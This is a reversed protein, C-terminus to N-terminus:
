DSPADANRRAWSHWSRGTVLSFRPLHHQRLTDIARAVTIEPAIAEIQPALDPWSTTCFAHLADDGEPPTSPDPDLLKEFLAEADDPCGYLLALLVLIAEHDIGGHGHGVADWTKILRFVNAIRKAVRPTPVLPHLTKFVTREADSISLPRRMADEPVLLEEARPPAPQSGTSREPEGEPESGAEPTSQPKAEPATGGAKRGEITGLLDDSYREFGDQEMARVAFPIQFIKELYNQPSSLRYEDQSKRDHDHDHLLREYHVQLSRLLWRSDVAAVVVFLDMALLLHTAELMQVVQKPTCRDLDDIYLIIRDIPTVNKPPTKTQERWDKMLRSLEEFDRRVLAIIGQRQRYDDSQVRENLFSSLQRFPDLQARQQQLEAVRARASQLKLCAAEHQNRHRTLAEGQEPDQEKAEEHQKDYTTKAEKLRKRFNQVRQNASGLVKNLTVAATAVYGGLATIGGLSESKLAAIGGLITAMVLGGLVIMFATKLPGPEMATRLVLRSQQTLTSTEQLTQEVQVIAKLPETWGLAAAATKLGDRQQENLVRELALVKMHADWEDLAEELATAAYSAALEAEGLAGHAQKLEAEVQARAEATTSKEFLKAWIEDFVLPVLNAWLHADSLHWANVNIQVVNKCLGPPAGKEAKTFADVSKQMRKMFFSKGSGWDGLLGICLPPQIDEDIALRALAKAETDIGLHDRGDTDEPRFGARAERESPLPHRTARWVAPWDFEKQGPPATLFHFWSDRLDAINLGARELRAQMGETPPALLAATVLHRGWVRKWKLTGMVDHLSKRLTTSLLAPNVPIPTVVPLDEPPLLETLKGFAASRAGGAAASGVGELVHWAETAGDKALGHATSLAHEVWREYSWAQKNIDKDGMEPLHGDGAEAFSARVQGAVGPNPAALFVEPLPRDRSGVVSAIRRASTELALGGAGTGLLPTWLRRIRFGSRHADDIGQGLAKTMRAATDGGKWDVTALILVPKTGGVTWRFPPEFGDLAEEDLGAMGLIQMNLESPTGSADASCVLTDVEEPPPGSGLRLITGNPLSYSAVVQFQESM